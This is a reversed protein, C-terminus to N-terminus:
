EGRTLTNNQETIANNKLLWRVREIGSEPKTTSSGGFAKKIGENLANLVTDIEADTDSATLMKNADFEVDQGSKTVPSLYVWPTDPSSSLARYRVEGYNEAGIQVIDFFADYQKTAGDIIFFYASASPESNSM